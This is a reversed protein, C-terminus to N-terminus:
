SANFVFNQKSKLVNTDENIIQIDVKQFHKNFNLPGNEKLHGRELPQYFKKRDRKKKRDRGGEKKGKEERPM